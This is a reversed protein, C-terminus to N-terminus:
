ESNRNAATHRMAEKADIEIAGEEVAGDHGNESTVVGIPLSYFVVHADLEAIAVM